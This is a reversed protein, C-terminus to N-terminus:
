AVVVPASSSVVILSPLPPSPSAMTEQRPQAWPCLSKINNMTKILISTALTSSTISMSQMGFEVLVLERAQPSVRSSLQTFDAVFSWVNDLVVVFM